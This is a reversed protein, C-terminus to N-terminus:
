ELLEEVEDVFKSAASRDLDGLSNDSNKVMRDWNKVVNKINKLLSEANLDKEELIVAIGSKELLKANKTQEDYATWPIPILIAPRKTIAIESLTNAGARSVIVDARGFIEPM